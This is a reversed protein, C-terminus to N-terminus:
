FITITGPYFRDKSNNLLPVVNTHVISILYMPERFRRWGHRGRAMVAPDTVLRMGWLAANGSVPRM